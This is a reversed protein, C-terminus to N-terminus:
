LDDPSQLGRPNWEEFVVGYMEPNLIVTASPLKYKRHSNKPLEEVFEGVVACYQLSNYYVAYLSRAEFTYEVTLGGMKLAEEKTFFWYGTVPLFGIYMLIDEKTARNLKPERILAGQVGLLTCRCRDFLYTDPDFPYSPERYSAHLDLRCRAWQEASDLVGFVVDYSDENNWDFVVNDIDVLLKVFHAKKKLTYATLAGLEHEFWAGIIPLRMGKVMKNPLPTHAAILRELQATTRASPSKKLFAAAHSCFSDQSGYVGYLIIKSSVTIDVLVGNLSIAEELAPAGFWRGGCPVPHTKALRVPLPPM